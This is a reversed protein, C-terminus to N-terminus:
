RRALRLRGGFGVLLLGLGILAIVDPRPGTMPLSTAALTQVVGTVNPDEAGKSRPEGGGAASPCYVYDGDAGLRTGCGGCYEYDGETGSTYNCYDTDSGPGTDDVVEDDTVGDDGVTGDDGPDVTEVPDIDAVPDDPDQALAPAAFLALLVAILVVLSRRVVAIMGTETVDM